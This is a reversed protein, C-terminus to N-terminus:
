PTTVRVTDVVTDTGLRSGDGLDYFGVVLDYDGPPLTHPVAFSRSDVVVEGPQWWSTGYWGGRPPGDGQAVVDGSPRDRLHVFVQYDRDIPRNVGWQLVVPQDSGAPWTPALDARRLTPAPASPDIPHSEASVGGVVRVQGFFPSALPQGAADVAPARRTLDPTIFGIELNFVGTQLINDWLRVTVRDCLVDGARWTTTPYTGLGPVTYRNAAVWNDPGVVHLLVVWEEDTAARARWCVRVPLLSDSPVTRALPEAVVLEAFDGFQWGVPEPLRAAQAPRLPRPHYTPLLILPPTLLALVGVVVLAAAVLRPHVARWGAVLLLAIAPLAPYLLRGFEAAVRRMWVELAVGTLLLLLTLVVGMILLPDDRLRARLGGDRQRRWMQRALGLLALGVLLALGDYVWAPFTVPGWGISVWFSEFVNRWQQLFTHTRPNLESYAWPAYDHADLGLPTGYLLWARVFWWGAVAVTVGGSVAIAVAVDPRRGPERWALWLLAVGVAPVLALASVKALAALGLAAGVAAARGVTPGRRLLRVLLWLSVTCLAAAPVDNSAVSSIYLFQPTFATLFVVAPAMAPRTPVLERTLAYLALLLGVGFLLTLGRALYLALYEGRPPWEVAPDHLAINDNDPYDRPQPGYYTPNPQFRIPHADYSGPALREQAALLLAGLAHYLPPQGAEQKIPTEWAAAGQPPLGDGLALRRMYAVHRPGDAYEYPPLLRSYVAALVVFAVLIAALAARPHRLTDTM